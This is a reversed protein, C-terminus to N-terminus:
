GQVISQLQLLIRLNIIPDNPSKLVLEPAKSRGAQGSGGTCTCLPETDVKRTAQTATVSVFHFMGQFWSDLPEHRRVPQDPNLQIQQLTTTPQIALSSLLNEHLLCLLSSLRIDFSCKRLSNFYKFVASYLMTPSLIRHYTSWIQGYILNFSLLPSATPTFTCTRTTNHRCKRISFCFCQDPWESKLQQSRVVIMGTSKLHIQIVEM